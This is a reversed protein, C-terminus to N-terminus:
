TGANDQDKELKNREMARTARLYIDMEDETYDVTGFYWVTDPAACGSASVDVTEDFVVRFNYPGERTVSVINAM